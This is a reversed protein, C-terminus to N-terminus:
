ARRAQTDPSPKTIAVFIARHIVDIPFGGGRWASPHNSRCLVTNGCKVAEFKELKSVGHFLGMDDILSDWCVNGGAVIVTPALTCIQAKLQSANAKSVVRIKGDNSRSEGSDKKINVVAIRNLAALLSDHDNEVLKIDGASLGHNKELSKELVAALLVCKRYTKNKAEFWKPAYETIQICDYGQYGYTEKLLFLLRVKSSYWREPNIAGDHIYGNQKGNQSHEECTTM